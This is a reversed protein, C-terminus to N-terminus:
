PFKRNSYHGVFYNTVLKELLDMKKFTMPSRTVGLNSFLVFCFLVVRRVKVKM